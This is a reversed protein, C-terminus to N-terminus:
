TDVDKAIDKKGNSNLKTKDQQKLKKQFDPILASNQLACFSLGEHRYVLWHCIYTQLCRSIPNISAFLSSPFKAKFSSTQASAHTYKKQHYVCASAANLWQGKRPLNQPNPPLHNGMAVKKIGLQLQNLKIM